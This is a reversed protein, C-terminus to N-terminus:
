SGRPDPPDGTTHASQWDPVRADISAGATLPSAGGEAFKPWAAGQSPADKDVNVRSDGPVALADRPGAGDPGGGERREGQRHHGTIFDHTPGARDATLDISRLM